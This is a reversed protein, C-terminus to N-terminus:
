LCSCAQEQKHSLMVFGQVMPIVYGVAEDDALMTEINQLQEVTVGQTESVTVHPVVKLLRDKIEKDFGNMISLVIILAAVGLAM